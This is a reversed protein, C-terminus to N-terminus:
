LFYLKVIFELLFFSFNNVKLMFPKLAACLLGLFRLAFHGLVIFFFCIMCGFSLDLSIFLVGLIVFVLNWFVYLLTNQFSFCLCIMCGSMLDLSIFFVGLILLFFFEYFIGSSCPFSCFYIFLVAISYLNFFSVVLCLHVKSTVFGGQYFRFVLLILLSGPIKFM